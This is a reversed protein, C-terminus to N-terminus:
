FLRNPSILSGVNEGTADRTIKQSESDQAGRSASGPIAAVGGNLEILLLNRIVLGGAFKGLVEAGGSSVPLVNFIFLQGTQLKLSKLVSIHRGLIARKKKPNLRPVPPASSGERANKKEACAVM